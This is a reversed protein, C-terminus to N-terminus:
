PLRSSFWNKLRQCVRAMRRTQGEELAEGSAATGAAVPQKAVAQEVTPPEVVPQELSDFYREKAKAETARGSAIERQSWRSSWEVNDRDIWYHSQCEFSWNGISPHLSITEGDFTLKWGRPSLPTVVKSGCGCCCSHVATAFAVSVYITGDELGDPIYEVFEHRLKINQPM